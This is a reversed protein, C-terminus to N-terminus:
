GTRGVAAEGAVAVEGPGAMGALRSRNSPEGRLSDVASSVAYAVPSSRPGCGRRHRHMGEVDHARHGDVLAAARPGAEIVRRGELDARRDGAVVQRQLVDQGDIAVSVPRGVRVPSMSGSPRAHATRGATRGSTRGPPFGGATRRWRAPVSVSGTVSLPAAPSRPCSTWRTVARGHRGRPGAGTATMPAPTFVGAPFLTPSSHSFRHAPRGDASTNASSRSGGPM